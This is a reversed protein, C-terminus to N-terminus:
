GRAESGTRARSVGSAQRDQLGERFSEQEKSRINRM